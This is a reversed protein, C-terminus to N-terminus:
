AFRAVHWAKKGRRLLIVGGPLLDAPTLVRENDVKEGNVSVSGGSLFERAERNSKALRKRRKKALRRLEGEDPEGAYPFGSAAGDRRFALPDEQWTQLNKDFPSAAIPRTSTSDITNPESQYTIPM